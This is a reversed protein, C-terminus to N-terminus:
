PEPASRRVLTFRASALIHQRNAFIIGALAVRGQGEYRRPYRRVSGARATQCSTVPSNMTVSTSKKWGAVGLHGSMMIALPMLRASRPPMMKKLSRPGLCSAFVERGFSSVADQLPTRRDAQRDRRGRVAPCPAPAGSQRGRALACRRLSPLRDPVARDRTGHSARFSGGCRLSTRGAGCKKIDIENVAQVPHVVEDGTRNPKRGRHQDSAGPSNVPGPLSARASATVPDSLPWVACDCDPNHNSSRPPVPPRMMVVGRM